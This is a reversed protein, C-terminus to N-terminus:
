ADRACRFGSFIQRRMPYDWNRFTTRIAQPHTAWSGGRLVKYSDGFFVESYEVYPFSTYGPYPLFDSSTWEWVDGLMQHCGVASAGAPYSGVVSPEYHRQGLNATDAGPEESGWPFLRKTMTAPDWSAAKEWEAETPLRKGAWRAYADAEFWSVHQVPEDPHLAQPRGFRLVSWSGTAERRWFEPAFARTRMVWRWGAESWHRPDDYGGEEVFRLHNGATVPTTDIWFADLDLRHPARENDYAWPHESGMTFPGAEVLVESATPGVAAHPAPTAVTSFRSYDEMLQATALLTEDHQHEHQVVMGYVFGDRVLPVTPDLDTRELHDLVRGRVEAIYARAEVPGLMPLKTRDSRPTLFANYIDDYRQGVGTAALGRLLWIDEYNGVHALDWVMPSMLSSQQRSQEEPPLPDVISLSRDRVVTLERAIKEKLDL